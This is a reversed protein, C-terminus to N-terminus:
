LDRRSGVIKAPVGAVISYSPVNKTVVAGAGVVAGEAINVGKLITVNAGIWVDDEIRIKEYKHPQQNMKIGMSM